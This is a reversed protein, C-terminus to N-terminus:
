SEGKAEDRRLGSGRLRSPRPGPPTVGASGTTASPVDRDAPPRRDGPEPKASEVAAREAGTYKDTLYKRRSPRVGEPARAPESDGLLAGVVRSRVARGEVPDADEESAIRVMDLLRDKDRHESETRAAVLASPDGDRKAIVQAIIEAHGGDVVERAAARKVRDVRIGRTADYFESVSRPRVVYASLEFGSAVTSRDLERRLATAFAKFQSIDHDQAIDLMLGTLSPRVAAVIDRIGSNVVAIPDVVRCNFIVDVSFTFSPDSAPLDEVSLTLSYMRLDVVYAHRYRGVCAGPVPEGSRVLKREGTFPELVLATDISPSTLRNVLRIRRPKVVEKIPDYTPNM